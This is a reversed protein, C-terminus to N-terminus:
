AKYENYATEADLLSKYSQYADEKFGNVQKQCKPWSNYICPKRGKFVVYYSQTPMQNRCQFFESLINYAWIVVQM